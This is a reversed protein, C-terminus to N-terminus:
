RLKLGIVNEYHCRNPNIRRVFANLKAEYEEQTTEPLKNEYGSLWLLTDVCKGFLQLYLPMDDYQHVQMEKMKNPSPKYLSYAKENLCDIADEFTKQYRKKMNSNILVTKLYETRYINHEGERTFFIFKIEISAIANANIPTSIKRVSYAIKKNKLYFDYVESELQPTGYCPQQWVIKILLNNALSRFIEDKLKSITEVSENEVSAPTNMIEHQTLSYNLYRVNPLM